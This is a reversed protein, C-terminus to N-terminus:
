AALIEAIRSTSARSKIYRANKGHPYTPTSISTFPACNEIPMSPLECPPHFFAARVVSGDPNMTIVARRRKGGDVPTWQVTALIKTGQPNWKAQFGYYEYKEPNPIKISPVSKEYIDRLSAVMKCKNSEIDTIYIGDDDVPGVNRKAFANPVIVGYGM